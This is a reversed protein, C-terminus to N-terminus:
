CKMGNGCVEVWKGSEMGNEWIEFWERGDWGMEVCRLDNEPM